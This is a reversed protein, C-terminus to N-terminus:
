GQEKARQIVAEVREKMLAGVREVSCAEVRANRAFPWPAAARSLAWVLEDFELSAWEADTDWRYSVPVPEMQFPLRYDDEDDFDATGGWPVHILRNGAIKADFAPLCNHTAYGRVLFSEDGKVSLNYLNQDRKPLLEVNRIPVYFSNQDEMFMPQGPNDPCECRKSYKWPRVIRWFREAHQAAVRVEHKPAGGNARSSVQLGAFIGLRNLLDIIGAALVPSSTSYRFRSGSASGDGWFLGRLLEESHQGNLFIPHIKKTLAGDGCLERFLRALVSNSFWLVAKRGQERKTVKLGFARKVAREAIEHAPGDDVNTTLVVASKVTCGEALYYGVLFM